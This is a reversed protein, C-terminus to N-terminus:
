AVAPMHINQIILIVSEVRSLVLKTAIMNGVCVAKTYLLDMCLVRVDIVLGEEDFFFLFM